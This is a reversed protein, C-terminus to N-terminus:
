TFLRDAVSQFGYSFNSVYRVNQMQIRCCLRDSYNDIGEDFM